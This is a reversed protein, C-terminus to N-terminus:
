EEGSQDGGYISRGRADAKLYARAVAVTVVDDGRRGQYDPEPAGCRWIVRFRDTIGVHAACYGQLEREM